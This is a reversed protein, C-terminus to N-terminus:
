QVLPRNKKKDFYNSIQASLGENDKEDLLYTDFLWNVALYHELFFRERDSLDAIFMGDVRRSYTCLSLFVIVLTDNYLNLFYLWFPFKKDLEALFLRVEGIEHLERPDNDYGFFGLDVRGRFKEVSQRDQLLRKLVGLTPEIDCHEVDNRDIIVSLLDAGSEQLADFDTM